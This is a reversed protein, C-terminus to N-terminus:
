RYKKLLGNHVLAEIEKLFANIYLDLLSTSRLALHADSLSHLEIGHCVKLMTLLAPKWKEVTGHRDAKPLIELTLGQTQIVGVFSNFKIKRYGVTFYQNGHQENLRVLADFQKQTFGQQGLVLYDHEFVQIINSDKSM